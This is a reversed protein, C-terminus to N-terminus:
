KGVLRNVLRILTLIIIIILLLTYGYTIYLTNKMYQIDVYNPLNDQENELLKIYKRFSYNVNFIYALCIIFIIISLIKIISESHPIKFTGSFGYLAIAVSSLLFVNRSASFYGNVITQPNNSYNIM